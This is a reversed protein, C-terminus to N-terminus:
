STLFVHVEETNRGSQRQSQGCEPTKKKGLNELSHHDAGQGVCKGM